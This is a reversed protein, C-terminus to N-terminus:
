RPNFATYSSSILHSIKSTRCDPSIFSPKDTTISKQITHTQNLVPVDYYLIRMTYPIGTLTTAYVVHIYIYIYIYIHKDLANGINFSIGLLILQRKTM